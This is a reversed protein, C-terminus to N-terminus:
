GPRHTCAADCGCAEDTRCAARRRRWAWAALMVALLLATIVLTEAGALWLGGAVVSAGAAILPMACCAACALGIGLLTKWSKM